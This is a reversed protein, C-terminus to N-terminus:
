TGNSARQRERGGLSGRMSAMSRRPRATRQSPAVKQRAGLSSANMPRRIAVFKGEPTFVDIRPVDTASQGSEGGDDIGDSLGELGRRRKSVQVAIEVWGVGEVVVDAGWITFPLQGVRLKAATPDTLPGTRKKTVDWSLGFGRGVRAFKGKAVETDVVSPGGGAGGGIVREGAQVAEAKATATVHAHLPVFCHALFVADAPFAPTIRVLGGGLLLSQGPKISLQVPKPRSRMVLSPRLAPLVYTDLNTRAIGPLDILEGRSSGYPIRIPSATTGPLASTLPM